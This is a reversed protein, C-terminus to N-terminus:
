RVSPHLWSLAQRLSDPHGVLMLIDDQELVLDGHPVLVEGSRRLGLVLAGGPLRVRRLPLGALLVNNLVVDRVIVGDDANALLDFSAPFHLAGELALVTALQTQVVRIGQENMRAAAASTNALAILNPIGFTEQGLRCATQNIADDSTIAMLAAATEAGAEALAAPTGPDGMIAQLDRRQLEVIRESTTGVLIVDEGTQRLREALLISLPNLGVLIVGQRMPAVSAPILHNFLIPSLTCTVIALLIIAANTAWDIAGLELAIAAAAIILSLRSSLLCGAGFTERWSFSLRFPLSALLKIAYAIGLLLPGLLLAQPSAFLARLDFRVGVMIFFIPVFFGYGIADMKMHLLSGDREALLSLVTGALFAGLIVETGLWESLVIFGVILAFTGRVKIQATTHALEDVVRQLGPITAALHGVRVAVVFTALLLIVLLLDLTLGRSIAATAVTILLMTGFDAVVAALLLAQGYRSTTLDREKLVPVVIGLSTTSLILAMIFPHQLLGLAVLGQAAIIGGALTLGFVMLGLTLPHSFRNAKSREPVALSFTGYDMELGSLFMLFTFGFTALFDLAPDPHILDFGSRGIVMGAAIEIVVLPLYQTRLVSTLLPLLAALGTLLLFAVFPFAHEEM